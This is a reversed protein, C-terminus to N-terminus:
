MKVYTSVRVSNNVPIYFVLGGQPVDYTWNVPGQGGCTLNLTLKNGQTMGTANIHQVQMGITQITEWQSGCIVWDMKEPAPSPGVYNYYDVKTLVYHGHPINGGISTPPSGQICTPTVAGGTNMLNNCGMGGDIPMLGCGGSDSS